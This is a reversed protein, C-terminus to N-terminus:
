KVTCEMLYDVIPPDYGCFPELLSETPDCEVYLDGDISFVAPTPDFYHQDDMFYTIATDEEEGLRFCYKEKSDMSGIVDRYITPSQVIADMEYTVYAISGNNYRIECDVLDGSNEGPFICVDESVCGDAWKMGEEYGACLPLSTDGLFHGNCTSPDDAPSCPTCPCTQAAGVQAESYFITFSHGAFNRAGAFVGEYFEGRYHEIEWEQMERVGGLGWADWAGYIVGLYGAKALRDSHEGLYAMFRGANEDNWCASSVTIYDIRLDTIILPKGYNALTWSGLDQLESIIYDFREEESDFDMDCYDDGARLQVNVAIVDVFGLVDEDEFLEEIEKKRNDLNFGDGLEDSLYGWSLTTAGESTYGYENRTLESYGGDYGAGVAIMCNPCLLRTARARYIIEDHRYRPFIECPPEDEMGCGPHMESTEGLYIVLITAGENIITNELFSGTSFLLNSDDPGSDVTNFLYNRTEFLEPMLNNTAWKVEGNDELKMVVSFEEEVDNADGSTYSLVYPVWLEMDVAFLVPQINRKMMTELKTNIYYANPYTYPLGRQRNDIKWDKDNDHDSWVTYGNPYQCQDLDNANGGWISNGFLFQNYGSMGFADLGYFFKNSYEGEDASSSPTGSYPVFSDMTYPTSIVLEPCYTGGYMGDSSDYPNEYNEDEEETLVSYATIARLNEKAMTLYGCSECMGYEKTELDDGQSNLLCKGFAWRETGDEMEVLHPEIAIYTEAEMVCEDSNSQPAYGGSEWLYCNLHTDANNSDGENRDVVQALYECFPANGTNLDHEEPDSMLAQYLETPNGTMAGIDWGWRNGVQGDADKSYCLHIYEEYGDMCNEIFRTSYTGAEPPAGDFLSTSAFPYQVCHHKPNDAEYGYAETCCDRNNCCQFYKEDGWSFYWWGWEGDPLMACPNMFLDIQSVDGDHSGPTDKYSATGTYLPVDGWDRFKYDPSVRGFGDFDNYWMGAGGIYQFYIPIPNGIEDAIEPIAEEDKDGEKTFSIMHVRGTSPLSALGNGHQTDDVLAPLAYPIEVTTSPRDWSPVEVAAMGMCVVNGNEDKCDCLVDNGEADVCVGRSYDFNNCYGSLCESSSLCEFEAGQEVSGNALYNGEEFQRNYISHHALLWPYIAHSNEEQTFFVTKAWDDDENVWDFYFYEGTIGGGHAAYYFEEEEAIDKRVFEPILDGGGEDEKQQQFFDEDSSDSNSIQEFGFTAGYLVTGMPYQDLLGTLGPIGVESRSGHRGTVDDIGEDATGLPFRRPDHEYVGDLGYAFPNGVHKNFVGHKSPYAEFPDIEPEYGYYDLACRSACDFYSHSEISGDESCTYIHSNGDFSCLKSSSGQVSNPIAYVIYRDVYGRSNLYCAQDTLPFYYQAEEFDEFSDGIGFRFSNLILNDSNEVQRLFLPTMEEVKCQANWMGIPDEIDTDRQERDEVDKDHSEENPVLGAHPRPDYFFSGCFVGSCTTNCPVTEIFACVPIQEEEGEDNIRTCAYDEESCGVVDLTQANGDEDYGFCVADDPDEPFAEEYACCFQYQPEVCGFLAFLSLVAMALLLASPLQSIRANKM